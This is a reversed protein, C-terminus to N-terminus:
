VFRTRSALTKHDLTTKGHFIDSGCTANDANDVTVRAYDLSPKVHSSNSHAIKLQRDVIVIIYGDARRESLDEPGRQVVM